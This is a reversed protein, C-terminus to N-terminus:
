DKVKKTIVDVVLSDDSSTEEKKSTDDVVEMDPSLLDNEIEKAMQESVDSANLVDDSTSEESEEESESTNDDYFEDDEDDYDDGDSGFYCEGVINSITRRALTQVDYVDYWILAGDEDTSLLTTEEDNFFDDTFEEVRNHLSSKFKEIFDIDEVFFAGNLSGCAFSLSVYFRLYNTLDDSCLSNDLLHKMDNLSDVDVRYCFVNNEHYFFIYKDKNYSKVKDFKYKNSFFDDMSIIASPHKLSIIYLRLTEVIDGIDDADYAGIIDQQSIVPFSLVSSVVGDDVYMKELDLDYFFRISQLLSNEDKAVEDEVSDSLSENVEEKTAQTMEVKNKDGKGFVGYISSVQIKKDPEKSENPIDEIPKKGTLDAVIKAEIDGTLGNENLPKPVHTIDMIGLNGKEFEYFKDASKKQEEPSLDWIDKNKKKSM